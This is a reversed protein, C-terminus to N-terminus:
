VPNEPCAEPLRAALLEELTQLNMPKILHHQFGADRSRRRDVDRGYGTIAVLLAGESEALQRLRRAVEYGDMGPLGIDLLIVEPHFTEAAELASPGDHATRVEHGQLRLLEALMEVADRNDDVALIRQRVVTRVLASPATEPCARPVIRAPLRVVFTSGKGQGESHATVTGGHLKVISRVLTLGIGLGGAARDLSREEQAFLDFIRPLFEPSIGRGTDEVTIVAEDGVPEAVLTVKGGADTYKAANNLLNALAQQIRAADVHLFLPAAPLSLLLRQRRADVHHRGMEVAREVVAHLDVMEKRLRIKGRSIRSVDLLDDVMRTMQEVQRAIVERARAASDAPVEPQRLLDVASLVPGLPNRLEHALMALFEDKRHGAAMLDKARRRLKGEVLLRDTVDEFALLIRDPQGETTLLHANLLLVRRSGDRLRYTVRFDDISTRSTLVEQLQRRLRPVNWHGDGLEFFHRDETQVPDLAFTHYFYRSATLVRLEADLVVLPTRVTDLISTAYDLAERLSQPRRDLRAPREPITPDM